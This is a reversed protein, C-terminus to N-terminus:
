EIQGVPLEVTAAVPINQKTEKNEITFTGTTKFRGDPTTLGFPLFSELIFGLGKLEISPNDLVRVSM